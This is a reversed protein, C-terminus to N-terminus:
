GGSSVTVSGDGRIVHELKENLEALQLAIAYQARVSEFKCETDCDFGGGTKEQYGMRNDFADRDRKIEEIQTLTEAM